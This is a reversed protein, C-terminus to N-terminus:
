IHILSLVVVTIIAFLLAWEKINKLISAEFVVIYSIVLTLLLIVLLGTGIYLKWDVMNAAILGLDDLMKMQAETVIEGERVINQGKLVMVPQVAEAAKDRAEETAAEDYIM